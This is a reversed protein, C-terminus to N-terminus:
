EVRTLLEELREFPMWFLRNDRDPLPAGSRDFLRVEDSCPRDRDPTVALLYFRSGVQELRARLPELGGTMHVHRWDRIVDADSALRRRWYFRDSAKIDNPPPTIQESVTPERREMADQFANAFRWRLELQGNISSNFSSSKCLRDLEREDIDALEEATYREPEKASISWLVTKAEVFVFAPDDSPRTFFLGGDPCGFGWQSGLDFEGVCLHGNVEGLVARLTDGAGNVARDLVPSPDAPLAHLFAYGLVGRESYVWITNHDPNPERYFYAM